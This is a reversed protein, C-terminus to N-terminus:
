PNPKHEQIVAALRPNLVSLKREMVVEQGPREKAMEIHASADEIKEDM